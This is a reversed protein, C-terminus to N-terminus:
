RGALVPVDERQQPHEPREVRLCAPYVFLDHPRYLPLFVTLTIAKPGPRGMRLPPACIALDSLGAERIRRAFDLLLKEFAIQTGESEAFAKALRTSQEQVSRLQIGWEVASDRLDTLDKVTLIKEPKAM